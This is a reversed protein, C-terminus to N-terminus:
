EAYQKLRKINKGVETKDIYSIIYRLKSEYEPCSAYRNGDVDVFSKLLQDTTKDKMYRDRILKTYPAISSDPHPYDKNSKKIDHVSRDDFSHVNFISNTSRAIGKTGFHSEIQGQALALRIDVGHETCSRYLIGASVKNGPAVSDIYASMSTILQDEVKRMDAQESLKDIYISDVISTGNSIHMSMLMWILLMLLRKM